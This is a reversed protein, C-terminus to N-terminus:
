RAKEIPCDKLLVAFEDGGVRAVVGSDGVTDRIRAAVGVLMRDGVGHGCTHNVARFQDLDLYCLAHRTFGACATVLAVRLHREFTRRDLLGTLPDLTNGRVIDSTTM